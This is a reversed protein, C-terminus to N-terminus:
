KINLFNRFLYSFNHKSLHLNMFRIIREILTPDVNVYNFKELYYYSYDEAGM